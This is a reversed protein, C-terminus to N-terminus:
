MGCNHSLFYKKGIEPVNRTVEDGGRKKFVLPSIALFFLRHLLHHIGRQVADKVASHMWHALALDQFRALSVCGGSPGIGDWQSLVQRRGLHNASRTRHSCSDSRTALWVWLMWIWCSSALHASHFTYQFIVNQLLWCVSPKIPVQLNLFKSQCSRM